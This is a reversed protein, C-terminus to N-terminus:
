FYSGDVDERETGIQFQYVYSNTEVEEGRYIGIKPDSRGPFMNGVLMKEKSTSFTVQEGGWYLKVHGNDSRALIELGVKYVTNPKVDTTWQAVRKSHGDAQYELSIKKNKVELSLPINAGGHTNAEYEKWQLVMLSDPIAGLAFSYTIYYTEGAKTQEKLAHMEARIYGKKRHFHASKTGRWDEGAKIYLDNTNSKIKDNRAQELNAFGLKSVDDDHEANYDVVLKSSATIALSLLSLLSYIRM